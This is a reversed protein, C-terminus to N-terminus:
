LFIKSNLFKTKVKPKVVALLAPRLHCLAVGPLVLSAGVEAGLALVVPQLHARGPAGEQAPAGCWDGGDLPLDAHIPALM